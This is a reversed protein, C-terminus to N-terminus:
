RRIDIQDVVQQVNPVNQALQAAEAKQQTTKVSGTLTLVQNKAKYRISQKDLRKSILAAKYNNEIGDDLNSSVGRAQSEEGVPQVSIQNAITRDPAASKAVDGARAKADNSHLTGGLTITNKDTDDSVTVDKLDAQELSKKVADAESRRNTQNCAVAAILALLLCAISLMRTKM